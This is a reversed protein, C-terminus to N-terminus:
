RGGSLIRFSACPWRRRCGLCVDGLEDGRHLQQLQQLKAEAINLRSTIAANVPWKM